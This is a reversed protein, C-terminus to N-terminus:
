LVYALGIEHLYNGLLFSRNPDLVIELSLSTESNLDTRLINRARAHKKCHLLVYETTEKSSCRARAKMKFLLASTLAQGTRLRRISQSIRRLKCHLRVFYRSRNSNPSKIGKSADM